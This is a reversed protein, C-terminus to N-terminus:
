NTALMRLMIPYPEYMFHLPFASLGLFVWLAIRDAKIFRLNRISPVGIHLWRRQAHALDLEERTPSNLCQMCYNNASLLISSLVNIALQLWVNYAKSRACSGTYLVSIGNKIEYNSGVWIIISTNIIM